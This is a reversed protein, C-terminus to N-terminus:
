SLYFRQGDSLKGGQRRRAAKSYVFYLPPAGDDAPRFIWGFFASADKRRRRAEDQRFIQANEKEAMAAKDDAPRFIM